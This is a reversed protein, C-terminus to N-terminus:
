YLWPWPIWGRKPRESLLQVQDKQTGELELSNQSEIFSYKGLFILMLCPFAQTGSSGTSDFPNLKVHCIFCCSICLTPVGGQLVEVWQWSGSLCLTCSWMSITIRQVSPVFAMVCMRAGLPHVVPIPHSGPNRPNVVPNVTKMSSSLEVKILVMLVGASKNIDESIVALNSTVQAAICHLHTCTLMALM